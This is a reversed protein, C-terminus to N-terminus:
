LTMCETTGVTDGCSVHKEEKRLAFYFAANGRINRCQWDDRGFYNALFWATKLDRRRRM